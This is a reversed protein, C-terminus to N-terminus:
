RPTTCLYRGSKRMRSALPSISTSSVLPCSLSCSRTLRCNRSSHTFAALACPPKPRQRHSTARRGPSTCSIRARQAAPTYHHALAALWRNHAAAGRAHM